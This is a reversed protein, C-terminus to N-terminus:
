KFTTWIYFGLFLFLFIVGGINILHDKAKFDSAPLYKTCVTYNLLAVLPAIIFSLTTAVDILGPMDNKFKLLVVMAGLGVLVAIANYWYKQTSAFLLEILITGTKGYGDFVTLTTSLMTAIAAIRVIPSIWNGVHDAYIAILQNSFGISGMELPIQNQYFVVVGILLFVVALAASFWYGLAFDNRVRKWSLERKSETTWISNWVSLDVATPMWGILAVIFLSSTKSNLSELISPSTMHVDFEGISFVFLTLTSLVLFIALISVGSKLLKGRGVISITLCFLILLFSTLTANEIGLWPSILGATVLVVGATVTFMTTVMSVAYAMLTWKGLRQYGHLLSTGSFHGWMSGSIFAPYKVLNALVVIGILSVGFEAGARTSQVLHSVGIATAAFLIGPGLGIQINKFKIM